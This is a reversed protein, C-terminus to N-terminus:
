TRPDLSPTSSGAMTRDVRRGMPALMINPPLLLRRVQTAVAQQAGAEQLNRALKEQVDLLQERTTRVAERETALNQAASLIVSSASTWCLMAHHCCYSARRSDAPVADTHGAQTCHLVHLM